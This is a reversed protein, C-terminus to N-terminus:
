FLQGPDWIESANNESVGFDGVLSQLFQDVQLIQLPQVQLVRLDGIGPQFMQRRAGIQLM